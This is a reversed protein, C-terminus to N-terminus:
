KAPEVPTAGLVGVDLEEASCAHVGLDPWKWGVKNRLIGGCGLDVQVAKHGSFASPASGVRCGGEAELLNGSFDCLCGIQLLCWVFDYMSFSQM